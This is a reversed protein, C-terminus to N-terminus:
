EEQGGRVTLVIFFNWTDEVKADEGPDVTLTIIKKLFKMARTWHIKKNFILLRLSLPMFFRGMRLTSLKQRTKQFLGNRTHAGQLVAGGKFTNGQNDVSAKM